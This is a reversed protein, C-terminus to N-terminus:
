RAAVISIDKFEVTTEGNKAKSSQGVMFFPTGFPEVRSVAHTSFRKVGGSDEGLPPLDLEVEAHYRMGRRALTLTFGTEQIHALVKDAAARGEKGCIGDLIPGDFLNDTFSSTQMKGGEEFVRGNEVSLYLSTGCGQTYTLLTAALYDDPGSRLGLWAGDYGTKADLRAKMSMDFDSLPLADNLTFINAIDGNSPHSKGGTQLAFVEGGEVVYLDPNGNVATWSDALAGGDFPDHFPLTLTKPAAEAPEAAGGDSAALRAKEEESLGDQGAAPGQSLVVALSTVAFLARLPTFRQPATSAKPIM